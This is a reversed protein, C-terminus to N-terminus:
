EHMSSRTPMYLRDTGEGHIEGIIAQNRRIEGIEGALKAEGFAGAIEGRVRSGKGHGLLLKTYAAAVSAM